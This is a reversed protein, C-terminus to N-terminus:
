EKEQTKLKENYRGFVESSIGYGKFIKERKVKFIGPDFGEEHISCLSKDTKLRKKILKPLEAINHTGFVIDVFPFDKLIKERISQSICGGICIM